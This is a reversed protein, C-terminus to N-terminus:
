QSFRKSSKSIFIKREMDKIENIEMKLHKKKIMSLIQQSPKTTFIKRGMDKIENIEMKM